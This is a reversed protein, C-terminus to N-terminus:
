VYELIREDPIYDTKGDPHLLVVVKRTEKEETDDDEETYQCYLKVKGTALILTSSTSNSYTKCDECDIEVIEYNEYYNYGFYYLIKNGPVLVITEQDIEVVDCNHIPLNVEFTQKHMNDKALREVLKHNM